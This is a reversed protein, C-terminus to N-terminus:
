KEAALRRAIENRFIQKVGPGWCDEQLMDRLEEVTNPEILVCILEEWKSM